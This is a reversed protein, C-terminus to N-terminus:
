LKKKHRFLTQQWQRFITRRQFCYKSKPNSTLLREHSLTKLGTVPSLLFPQLCWSPLFNAPLKTQQLGSHCGPHLLSSESQDGGGGWGPSVCSPRCHGRLQAPSLSLSTLRFETNQGWWCSWNPDIRCYDLGSMALCMECRVDTVVNRQKVLNLNQMPLSCSFLVRSVSRCWARGQHYCTTM